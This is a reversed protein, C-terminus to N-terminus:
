LKPPNPGSKCFEANSAFFFCRSFILSYEDIIGFGVTLERGTFFFTLLFTILLRSFALSNALIILFGTGLFFGMTMEDDSFVEFKVYM